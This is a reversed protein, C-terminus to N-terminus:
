KEEILFESTRILEKNQQNLYHWEYENTSCMTELDYVKYRKYRVTDGKKFGHGGVARLDRNLVGEKWGRMKPEIKM